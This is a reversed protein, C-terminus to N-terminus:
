IPSSSKRLFAFSASSGPLCAPCLHKSAV